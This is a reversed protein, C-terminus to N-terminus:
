STLQSFFKWVEHEGVCAFYYQLTHKLFPNLMNLLIHLYIYLSLPQTFTCLSICHFLYCMFQLTFFTLGINVEEIRSLIYMDIPIHNREYQVIQEHKCKCCFSYYCSPRPLIHLTFILAAYGYGAPIVGKNIALGSVLVTPWLQHFLICVWHYHFTDFDCLKYGDEDCESACWIRCGIWCSHQLYSRRLM